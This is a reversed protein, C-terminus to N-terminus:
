SLNSWTECLPIRNYVIIFDFALQLLNGVRHKPRNGAHTVQSLKLQMSDM